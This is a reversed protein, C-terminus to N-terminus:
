TCSILALIMETFSDIYRDLTYNKKFQWRKLAWMDGMSVITSAVLDIDTVAFVGTKCGKKLIRIFVDHMHSNVEIVPLRLSPSFSGMEKYLFVTGEWNAHHYRMYRDIAAKLAERPELTECLDNIEKILKRVQYLGYNIALFIIDERTGIYHYLNGITMESASAIERISTKQIGRAAILRFAAQIIQRRREEVLGNNPSFTRVTSLEAKM